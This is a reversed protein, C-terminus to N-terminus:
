IDTLNTLGDIQKIESYIQSYLNQSHDHNQLQGVSWFLYNEQNDNRTSVDTYAAYQYHIHTIKVGGAVIVFFEVQKISLYVDTYDTSTAISKPVDEVTSTGDTHYVNMQDTETASDTYITNTCNGTLAM